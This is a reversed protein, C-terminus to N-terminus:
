HQDHISDTTDKQERMTLALNELMQLVFALREQPFMSLIAAAREHLSLNDDLYFYMVPKGLAAAWQPLDPANITSVGTEVNSVVGQSIGLRSALEGQTIEAERRARRIREALRKKDDDAM